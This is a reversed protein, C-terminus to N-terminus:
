APIAGPLTSSGVEPKPFRQWGFVGSFMPKSKEHVEAFGPLLRKELCSLAVGFISTAGIWIGNRLRSIGLCNRRLISSQVSDLANSEIPVKGVAYPFRM